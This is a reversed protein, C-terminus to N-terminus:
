TLRNLYKAPRHQVKEFRKNFLDLEHEPTKLGNLKSMFVFGVQCSVNGLKLVPGTGVLKSVPEFFYPGPELKSRPRTWIKPGMRVLVPISEM